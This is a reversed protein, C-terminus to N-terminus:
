PIIKLKAGIEKSKCSLKLFVLPSCHLLLDLIPFTPSANSEERVKRILPQWHTREKLRDRACAHALREKSCDM